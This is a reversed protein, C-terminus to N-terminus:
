KEEYEECWHEHEVFDAAYESDCNTCLYGQEKSYHGYKCNGCCEKEM